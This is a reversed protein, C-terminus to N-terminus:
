DIRLVTRSLVLHFWTFMTSAVVCHVSVEFPIQTTFLRFPTFLAHARYTHLWKRTMVFPLHSPSVQKLKNGANILIHILEDSTCARGVHRAALKQLDTNYAHIKLFNILAQLQAADGYEALM